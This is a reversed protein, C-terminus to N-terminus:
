LRNEMGAKGLIYIRNLCDIYSMAPGVGAPFSSTKQGTRKQQVTNYLTWM